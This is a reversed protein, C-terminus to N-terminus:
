RTEHRKDDSLCKPGRVRFDKSVRIVVCFFAIKCFVIACRVFVIFLDRRM